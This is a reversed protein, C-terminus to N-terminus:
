KDNIATIIAEARNISDTSLAKLSNLALQRFQLANLLFTDDKLKEITLYNDDSEPQYFPLGLEFSYSAMIYPGFKGRSYESMANHWATESSSIVTYYQLLPETILRDDILDLNGTSKLDEMTATELKVRHTTLFLPSLDKLVRNNEKSLDDSVSEIRQLISEISEIRQEHLVIDQHLNQTLSALYSQRKVHDQQLAQWQTVQLGLFIGVIVVTVDLVVAFWDQAKVHAVFRRLIM